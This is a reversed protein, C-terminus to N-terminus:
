AKVRKPVKAFFRTRTLGCKRCGETMECVHETHAGAHIDRVNSMLLFRWIHYGRRCLFPPKM